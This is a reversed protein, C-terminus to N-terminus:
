LPNGGAVKLTYRVIDQSVPRNDDIESVFRPSMSHSSHNSPLNSTTPIDLGRRDIISLASVCYNGVQYCVIAERLREILKAVIKTDEGKDAFRTISGKALLKQSLEEIKQFTSCFHDPATWATVLQHVYATLGRRRNTEEPDGDVTTTIINQKFRDM